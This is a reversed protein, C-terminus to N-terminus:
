SAPPPEEIPTRPRRGRRTLRIILLALLAILALFVVWPLAAGIAILTWGLAAVLAAFGAAVAGWFDTPPANPASAPTTLDITITAYGVQDALYKQQATYSELDSERQSLATEIAVLDTTSAATALLQRLRDVSAKLSAIRAALDTTQQTVDTSSTSLSKVAGLQQISALTQDLRDSPIRAVLQASADHFDNKPQKTVGDLRGGSQEVVARARDAAGLPDAAVISLQGTIVVARNQVLPAGGGVAPKGVGSSTGGDAGGSTSSSGGGSTCGALALVLAAVAAVRQLTRMACLNPGSPAGPSDRVRDNHM